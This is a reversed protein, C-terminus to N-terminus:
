VPHLATAAMAALALEKCGRGVLPAQAAVVAAQIIVPRAPSMAATTVKGRLETAATEMFLRLDAQGQGAAAAQVAMTATLDQLPEQVVAAAVARQRLQILVSNGGAGGKSGFPSTSGDGGGGVTISYSVGTAVSYGSATRFGGAGGGGHSGGGGGAVILYEISPPPNRPRWFLANLIGSM